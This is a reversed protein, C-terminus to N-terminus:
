AVETCDAPPPETKAMDPPPLTDTLVFSRCAGHCDPCRMTDLGDNWWTYSQVQDLVEGIGDCTECPIFRGPPPPPLANANM